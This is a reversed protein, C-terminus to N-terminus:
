SLREYLWQSFEKLTDFEYVDGYQLAMKLNTEASGQGHSWADYSLSAFGYSRGGLWTLKYIHSSVVLVYIKKEDFEEATFVESSKEKVMERM